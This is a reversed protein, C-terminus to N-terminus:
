QGKSCLLSKSCNLSMQVVDPRIMAAYRTKHNLLLMTNGRFAAVSDKKSGGGKLSSWRSDRKSLDASLWDHVM